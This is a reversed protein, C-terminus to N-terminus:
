PDIFVDELWLGRRGEFTSFSFFYVVYAVPRSGVYALLSRAAPSPGFLSERLIGETATASLKEFEAMARIFTLLTPIDEVTAERVDVDLGDVALKM